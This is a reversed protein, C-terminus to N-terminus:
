RALARLARVCTAVSEGAGAVEFAQRRAPVRYRERQVAELRPMLM